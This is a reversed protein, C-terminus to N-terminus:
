RGDASIYNGVQNPCTGGDAAEGTATTSCSRVEGTLVDKRLMDTSYGGPSLNTAHTEFAVYRGDASIACSLSGDNAQEGTSSTSCRVVEGTLIDKRFVDIAGNTDDPVLNTSSSNFVVFRGDVNIGGVTGGGDGPEGTSTTECFVIDGPDANAANIGLLPLLMLMMILVCCIAAIKRSAGMDIEGKLWRGKTARCVNCDVIFTKSTHRILKHCKSFVGAFGTTTICRPGVHAFDERM